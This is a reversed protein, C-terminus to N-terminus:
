SSRLGNSHPLANSINHIKLPPRQVRTETGSEERVGHAFLRTGLSTPSVRVIDLERRLAEIMLECEYEVDLEEEEPSSSREGEGQLTYVASM